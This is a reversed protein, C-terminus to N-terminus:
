QPKGQSTRGPVAGAGGVDGVPRFGERIYDIVPAATYQIRWDSKSQRRAQALFAERTAEGGLTANYTAATRTPDTFEVRAVRSSDKARRSWEEFAVGDTNRDGVGVHFWETPEAASWYINNRFEVGRPEGMDRVRILSIEARDPNQVLNRAFVNGSIQLTDLEESQVGVVSFARSWNYITNNRFVANHVGVGAPGISLAGPSNQEGILINNEVVAGDMNLNGVEIGNGRITRKQNTRPTADIVVNSAVRGTVGGPRAKRIRGLNLSPTNDLCLNGELVGNTRCYIGTTSGRAIINGRATIDDCSTTIYINHNFWTPLDGTEINYGNHDFVCEEILAGDVNALFMGQCHGSTSWNDTVVCRRIQFNRLHEEVREKRPGRGVVGLGTFDFNCDEILLNEGTSHWSLGEGGKDKSENFDPSDPDGTHDYIHLGFIAVNCVGRWDPPMGRGTAVRLFRTDGVKLLPRPGDGYAGIVIPERASRGCVRNGNFWGGLGEEWEDGRRLLLWDPQGHRLMSMGKELTKLPAEPSLGDNEDSGSSSSVYIVRSDPSPEFVTWGDAGVGGAIRRVQQGGAGSAAAWTVPLFFTLFGLLAVLATALVFEIVTFARKM